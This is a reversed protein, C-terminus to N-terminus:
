WCKDDDGHKDKESAEAGADATPLLLVFCVEGRGAADEAAAASPPARARIANECDHEGGEDRDRQVHRDVAVLYARWM